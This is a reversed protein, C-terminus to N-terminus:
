VSGSHFGSRARQALATSNEAFSRLLLLQSCTDVRSM